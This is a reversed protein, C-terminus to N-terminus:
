RRHYGQGLRYCAVSKDATIVGQDDKIRNWNGGTPDGGAHSSAIAMTVDHCNTLLYNPVPTREKRKEVPESEPSFGGLHGGHGAILINSSNSIVMYTGRSFGPEDMGGYLEINRSNEIANYRKMLGHISCHSYIVLPEHTGSVLLHVYDPKFKYDYKRFPDSGGDFGYWRGGGNGSIRVIAADPPYDMFDTNPFVNKVLSHRGAKWDLVPFAGAWDVSKNRPKIAFQALLCAAEPDDSTTIIPQPDGPRWADVEPVIVSLAPSIGFLVTDNKLELTGTTRFTGKPIFIKPFNAIAHRFAGTDDTIGDGKAAFRGMKEPDTICVADRDLGFLLARVPLRHRALLDEAPSAGDLTVLEETQDHGDIRIVGNKAGYAYEAVHTWEDTLAPVPARDFSRVLTEAGKVYVNRLYLNRGQGGKRNDLNVFATSRNRLVVTGDVLCLHGNFPEGRADNLEIVSGQNMEIRFGAVTLPWMPLEHRIAAVEQDVLTLGAISGSQGYQAWLGYRGGYVELNAMFGGNGIMDKIGAYAGYARVTLNEVFQAQAGHCKFGVAGPNGAGCDIILSSVGGSDMMWAGAQPFKPHSLWYKLIPRPEATDQFAPSRDALKIVPRDNPDGIIPYGKNPRRSGRYPYTDVKCDLMESVLYTGGPLYLALKYLYVDRLAQQLAATDDTVGDGKAYHRANLFGLKLLPDGALGRERIHPPLEDSPMESEWTGELKALEALAPGAVALSSLLLGSRALFQRRSVTPNSENRHTM